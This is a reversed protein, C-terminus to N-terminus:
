LVTGQYEEEVSALFDLLQTPPSSRPATSDFFLAHGKILVLVVALPSLNTIGAPSSVVQHRRDGLKRGPGTKLRDRIHLLKDHFHQISTYKHEPDDPPTHLPSYFFHCTPTHHTSILGLAGSSSPWTSGGIRSLAIHLM